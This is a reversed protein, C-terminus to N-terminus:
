RYAARGLPATAHAAGKPAGAAVYAAYQGVLPTPNRRLENDLDWLGFHLWYADREHKGTRWRWEVLSFIPFWTYGIVPLGEARAAGIAAISADMWAVRHALSVYDSTETVMVPLGTHRHFMELATVLDAATGYVRRRRMAGRSTLYKGRSFQPYFNVGLVDPPQPDAVLRDLAAEPIGSALLRARDPHSADVRGLVLDIPLLMKRRKAEVADALAPETSTVIDCPEVAFIRADPRLERIAATTRSIGDAIGFLVRDYGRQGRLHPPWIGNLGGFDANVMPENLPTWGHAIDGYRSVTEAAYEAVRMPYDPDVFSRRLWLPTGYHVLDFIPRVERRAMHEMVRDLWEWDWAGPAPNVRYWPVGYRVCRVGLSAILDIDTKWQGYHDILEYEDLIRARRGAPHGIFTDEIGVAWTWEAEAM